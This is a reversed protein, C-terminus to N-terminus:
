LSNLQALHDHNMYYEIELQIWSILKEWHGQTDFGNILTRPFQDFIQIAFAQLFHEILWSAVSTSVNVVSVGVCKKHAYFFCEFWHVTSASFAM